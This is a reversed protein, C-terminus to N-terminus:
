QLGSKGCPFQLGYLIVFALMAWLACPLIMMIKAIGFLVPKINYRQTNSTMFNNVIRHWNGIWGKDRQFSCHEM